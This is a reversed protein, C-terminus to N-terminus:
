SKTDELAKEAFSTDVAAKAEDVTVKRPIDTSANVIDVFVSSLNPWTEEFFDLSEQLDTPKLKTPDLGVRVDKLPINMGDAVAKYADEKDSRLHEVGAQWTKLLAVVADENDEAFSERVVLFDSIIGPKDGAKYVTRFGKNLATSIYPEWTYAADVRGANLAVPASAGSLEVKQIDDLTLGNSELAYVLMPYGTSATEIGVKKGRLGKVSTIQPKGVIQDGGLSVDGLLVHRTKIEAAMMTLAQGPGVGYGGDLRGAGISSTLDKLEELVQVRLDIGNEKDLGRQDAIVLPAAGIWLPTGIRVTTQKSSSSAEDDGGGCAALGCMAMALVFGILARRWSGAMMRRSDM